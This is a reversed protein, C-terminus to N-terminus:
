KKKVDMLRRFMRKGVHLVCELKNIIFNERYVKRDTLNKFTKCDGDGIYNTYRAQHTGESREFMDFIGDVKIKGASGNHNRCCEDAHEAEFWLEFEVSNM